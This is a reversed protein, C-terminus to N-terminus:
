NIFNLFRLWINKLIVAANSKQKMISFAEYHKVIMSQYDPQIFFIPYTKLSELYFGNDYIAKMFTYTHLPQDIIQLEDKYHIHMYELAMPNPINILVVSDPNVLKRITAFINNHAEVPIHELVDPFVIFDFKEGSKFDSMNNVEFTINHKGYKKTAYQISEPSIDVGKIKGSSLSKGIFSTLMGLGCGIELVSSNKKLGAKKLHYLIYRHRSNIGGKNKADLDKWFKDYYEAVDKNEIAQM